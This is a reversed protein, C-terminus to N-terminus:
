QKKKQYNKKAYGSAFILPAQNEHMRLRSFKSACHFLNACTHLYIQKRSFIFKCAHTIKDM